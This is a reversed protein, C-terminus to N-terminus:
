ANLCWCFPWCKTSKHLSFKHVKISIESFITILPGTSSVDANAKTTPQFQVPSLGNGLGIIAQKNCTKQSKGEFSLAQIAWQNGNAPLDLRKWLRGICDYCRNAQGCLSQCHAKSITSVWVAWVVPNSIESTRDDQFSYFHCDSLHFVQLVQGVSSQTNRIKVDIANAKYIESLHITCESLHNKCDVQRVSLHM